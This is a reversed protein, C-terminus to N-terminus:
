GAASINRAGVLETFVDEYRDVQRTTMCETQFFTAIHEPSYELEGNLVRKLVRNMEEPTKVVWGLKNKEVISDPDVFTLVPVGWSWAHLFTNPFGEVDSTNILVRARGYYEEVEAPPLYGTYQINPIVGAARGESTTPGSPYRKSDNIDGVMVFPHEPFAEALDVFREPSKKPRINGVWLVDRAQSHESPFSSLGNHIIRAKKGLIKWASSAQHQNQAVVADVFRLGIWYPARYVNFLVQRAKLDFDTNSAGAFVVQKGSSKAHFVVPFLQHSAGRVYYIDADARRLANLVGSFRPHFFRLLPLGDSRNFASLIRLPGLQQEPGQGHDITVFSVPYGRAALERGILLQQLEAGGCFQSAEPDALLRYIPMSVFCVSPKKM